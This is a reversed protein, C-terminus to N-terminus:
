FTVIRHGSTQISSFCNCLIVNWMSLFHFPCLRSEGLKETLYHVYFMMLQPPPPFSSKCTRDPRWNSDMEDTRLDSHDLSLWDNSVWVKSNRGLCDPQREERAQGRTNLFLENPDQSTKPAKPNRTCKVKLKFELMHDPTPDPFSSGEEVPNLSLKQKQQKKTLPPPPPSFFCTGILCAGSDVTLQNVRLNQIMRHALKLRPVFSHWNPKYAQKSRVYMSVADQLRPLRSSNSHTGSSPGTGALFPLPPITPCFQSPTTACVEDQIISTNNHIFVKEVAM